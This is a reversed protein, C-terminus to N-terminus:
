ASHGRRLGAVLESAAPAPAGAQPQEGRGGPIRSELSGLRQGCALFRWALPVEGHRKGEGHECWWDNSGRWSVLKQETPSIKLKM